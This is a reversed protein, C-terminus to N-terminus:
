IKSYIHQGDEQKLYHTSLLAQINGFDSIEGIKLSGKHVISWKPYLLNIDGFTIYIRKDNPSNDM